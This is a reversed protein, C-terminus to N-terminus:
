CQELTCCLHMKPTLVDAVITHSVGNVHWENDDQVEICTQLYGIISIGNRVVWRQEEPTTIMLIDGPYAEVASSKCNTSGKDGYILFMGVFSM